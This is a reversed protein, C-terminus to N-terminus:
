RSNDGRHYGSRAYSVKTAYRAANWPGLPLTRLLGHGIHGLDSRAALKKMEKKNKPLVFQAHLRHEKTFAKGAAEPDKATDLHYVPEGAMLGSLAMGPLGVVATGPSVYHTALRRFKGECLEAEVIAEILEDRTMMVEEYREDYGERYYGQKAFGTKIPAKHRVNYSRGVDVVPGMFDTNYAVIDKAKYDQNYPIARHAKLDKKKAFYLRGLIPHKAKFDAVSGPEKPIEKGIREGRRTGLVYGLGAGAGGGIAAGAVTGISGAMHRYREPALSGLAAGGIAGIVGGPIAGATIGIGAHRQVVRNILEKRPPIYGKDWSGPNKPDVFKEYDTTTTLPVDQNILGHHFSRSYHESPQRPGFIGM